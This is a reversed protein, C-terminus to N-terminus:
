SFSRRRMVCDGTQGASESIATYASGVDFHITSRVANGGRGEPGEPSRQPSPSNRSVKKNFGAFSGSPRESNSMQRSIFQANHTLRSFICLKACDGDVLVCM